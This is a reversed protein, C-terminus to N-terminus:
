RRPLACPDLHTSGSIPGISGTTEPDHVTPGLSAVRSLNRPGLDNASLWLAAGYAVAGVAVTVKLTGSLLSGHGNRDSGLMRAVETRLLGLYDSMM